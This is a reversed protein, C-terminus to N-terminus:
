VLDGWIRRSREGPSFPHHNIRHLCKEPTGECAKGREMPDNGFLGSILGTKSSGLVLMHSEDPSEWARWSRSKIARWLLGQHSEAAKGWGQHAPFQSFPDRDGKWVQLTFCCFHYFHGQSLSLGSSRTECKRPCAEWFGAGNLFYKGVLSVPFALWNSYSM